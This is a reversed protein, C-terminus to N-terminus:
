LRWYFGNERQMLQEVILERRISCSPNHCFFKHVTLQLRIAQGGCPVDKPHRQYRSHVSDSEHTCLPCSASRRKSFVEVILMNEELLYQKICLGKPLALFVTGEM